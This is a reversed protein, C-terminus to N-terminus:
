KWHYKLYRSCVLKTTLANPKYHPSRNSICQDDELISCRKVIIKKTMVRYWTSNQESIIITLYALLETYTLSIFIAQLSTYNIYTYIKQLNKGSREIPGCISAFIWTTISGMRSWLPGGNWAIKIQKTGTWLGARLTRVSGNYCQSNTYRCAVPLLPPIRNGAPPISIERNLLTLVPERTWGAEYGIPVPLKIGPPSAVPAHVQGNVEM